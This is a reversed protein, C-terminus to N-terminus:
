PRPVALISAILTWGLLALSHASLTAPGQFALLEILPWPTPPTKIVIQWPLKDFLTLYYTYYIQPSLWAFLYFLSAAIGIRPITTMRAMMLWAIFLLAAALILSLSILGLQGPWTLTHFSDHTYM